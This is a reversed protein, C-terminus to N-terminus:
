IEEIKNLKGKTKWVLSQIEASEAVWANGDVDIQVNLPQANNWRCLELQM